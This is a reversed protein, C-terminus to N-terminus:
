AMASAAPETVPDHDGQETPPPAARHGGLLATAGLAAAPPLLILQPLQYRWSFQSVAVSSILM